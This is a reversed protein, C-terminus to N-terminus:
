SLELSIFKHQPGVTSHPQGLVQGLVNVVVVNPILEEKGVLSVPNVSAPNNEDNLM